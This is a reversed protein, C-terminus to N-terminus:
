AAPLQSLLWQGVPEVLPFTPLPNNDLMGCAAVEEPRVRICPLQARLAAIHEPEAPPSFGPIGDEMTKLLKEHRVNDDPREPWGTLDLLPVYAAEFVKLVFTSCTLGLGDGLDIEGTDKDIRASGPRFAYPPFYRQEFKGSNHRKHILRCVGTVDNVEEDELLPVVFCLPDRCKSSRFRKHWMLDQICPVGEVSFLLGTHTGDETRMAFIALSPSFGPGQFRDTHM